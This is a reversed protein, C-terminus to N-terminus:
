HEIPSDEPPGRWPVWGVPVPIRRRPFQREGRRILRNWEDPDAWPPPDPPWAPQPTDHTPKDWSYPFDSQSFLYDHKPCELGADTIAWDEGVLEVLSGHLKWADPDRRRASMAIDLSRMLNRLALPWDLTGEGHWRGATQLRTILKEAVALPDDDPQWEVEIVPRGGPQDLDSEIRAEIDLHPGAPRQDYFSSGGWEGRIEQGWRFTLALGDPDRSAQVTVQGGDIAALKNAETLADTATACSMSEELATIKADQEQVRRQMRQDLDAQLNDIRAALENTREQLHEEVQQAAQHIARESARIVTGTFRRELLFLAGALGLATGINVLVAPSVGQWNWRAEFLFALSTLTV